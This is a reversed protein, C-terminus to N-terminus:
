LNVKPPEVYRIAYATIGTFMAQLGTAGTEFLEVELEGEKELDVIWNHLQRLAKNREKAKINDWDDARILVALCDHKHYHDPVRKYDPCLRRDNPFGDPILEDWDDPISDFHKRPNHNVWGEKLFGVCPRGFGCEGDDEFIIKHKNAFEQLEKRIESIKKM